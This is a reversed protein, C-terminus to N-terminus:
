RRPGGSSGRFAWRRRRPRARLAVLLLLGLLVVLGGAEPNGAEFGDVALEADGADDVERGRREEQAAGAVGLARQEGPRHAVEREHVGDLAADDLQGRTGTASLMGPSPSASTGCGRPACGCPSAWSLGRCPSCAEVREAQGDFELGGEFGEVAVVLLGEVEPLSAADLHRGAEDDDAVVGGGGLQDVVVDGAELALVLVARRGEFVAAQGQEAVEVFVAVREGRGCVSRMSLSCSSDPSASSSLKRSSPRRRSRGNGGRSRDLAGAVRSCASFMVSWSRSRSTM